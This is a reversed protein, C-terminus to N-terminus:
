KLRTPLRKSIEHISDLKTWPKERAPEAGRGLLLDQSSNKRIGSDIRDAEGIFCVVGIMYAYCRCPCQAYTLFTGSASRMAPKLVRFPLQFARPPEEHGNQM